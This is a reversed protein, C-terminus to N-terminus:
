KNENILQNIDTSNSKAGGRVRDNMEMINNHRGLRPFGNNIIIGMQCEVFFYAVM